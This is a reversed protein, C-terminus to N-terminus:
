GNKEKDKYVVEDAEMRSPDCDMCWINFSSNGFVGGIAEQGCKCYLFSEKEDKIAVSLSKVVFKQSTGYETWEM